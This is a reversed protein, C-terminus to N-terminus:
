AAKRAVRDGFLLLASLMLAYIWMIFAAYVQALEFFLDPFVVGFLLTTATHLLLGPVALAAAFRAVKGPECVLRCLMLALLAAVGGGLLFLTLAAGPSVFLGNGAFRFLLVVVLWLPFGVILGRRM